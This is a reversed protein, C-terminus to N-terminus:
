GFTSMQHGNQYGDMLKHQEGSQIMQIAASLARALVPRMSQVRGLAVISTTRLLNRQREPYSDPMSHGTAM